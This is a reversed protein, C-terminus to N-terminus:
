QNRRSEKFIRYVENRSSALKRRISATSTTTTAFTICKVFTLLPPPSLNQTFLSTM